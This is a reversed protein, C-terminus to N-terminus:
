QAAMCPEIGQLIRVAVRDRGPDLLGAIRDERDGRRCSRHPQGHIHSRPTICHAPRRDMTRRLFDATASCSVETRIPRTMEAAPQTLTFLTIEPRCNLRVAPHNVAGSRPQHVGVHGARPLPGDPVQTGPHAACPASAPCGSRGAMRTGPCSCTSRSAPGRPRCFDPEHVLLIKCADAPVGEPGHALDGHRMLLDDVGVMWLSAGDDVRGRASANCLVTLGVRRFPEEGHRASLRREHNGMIVFVGLPARLAALARARVDQTARAQASCTAPSSRSTQACRM